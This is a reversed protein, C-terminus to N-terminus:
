CTIRESLSLQKKSPHDDLFFFFFDIPISETLTEGDAFRYAPVFAGPYESPFHEDPEGLKIDLNFYKILSYPLIARTRLPEGATVCYYLTDQAM